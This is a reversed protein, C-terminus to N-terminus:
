KQRLGLARIVEGNKEYEQRLERALAEPGEYDLTGWTEAFSAFSPEGISKKIAENLATVIYPPTGRPAVIAGFSGQTVEFGLEKFTPVDPALALRSNSFVGLMVARHEKISSAVAALFAVAGDIQRSIVASVQQPAQFAVVKLRIKGLLQLQEIDLDPVTGLGPVGISFRGPHARADDLFQQATRWPADARVILIPHGSVLKAVPAYTDPGGYGTKIRHPQVTLTADTGLVLTYGDPAAALAEAIARTGADEPRNVVVIRQPLYKKAAEALHHALQDSASGPGYPVLLTIPKQPYPERQAATPAHPDSHAGSPMLQSAIVLTAALEKRRV